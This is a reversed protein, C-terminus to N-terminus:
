GYFYLSIVRLIVVILLVVNSANVIRSLWDKGQPFWGIDKISRKFMESKTLSKEVGQKWHTAEYIAIRAWTGLYAILMLVMIWLSRIDKSSLDHGWGFLSTCAFFIAIYKMPVISRRMPHGDFSFNWVDKFSINSQYAVARLAYTYKTCFYVTFMAFSTILGIIAM